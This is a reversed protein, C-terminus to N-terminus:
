ATWGQVFVGDLEEAPIFRLMSGHYLAGGNEGMGTISGKEAILVGADSAYLVHLPQKESFYPGEGSCVDYIDSGVLASLNNQKNM